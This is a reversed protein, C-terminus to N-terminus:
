IIWSNQLIPEWWSILGGEKIQLFELFNLLTSTFWNSGMWTCGIIFFNLGEFKQFQFVFPLVLYNLREGSNTGGLFNPGGEKM